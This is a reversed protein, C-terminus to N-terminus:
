SPANLSKFTWGIISNLTAVAPRLERPSMVALLEAHTPAGYPVPGNHVDFGQVLDIRPLRGYVEIYYSLRLLSRKEHTPPLRDLQRKIRELSVPLEEAPLPVLGRDGQAAATAAAGAALGGTLSLTATRTKLRNEVRLVGPTERAISEMKIKEIRSQVVGVLSVVSDHVIIHYPPNATAAFREFFRHTVVKYGIAQRLAQDGRSPSLIELDNHLERVGRVRAVRRGIDGKKDPTATVRGILTVVGNHLSWHVFDFVTYYEYDRIADVVDQGLVADSEASEITLADTVVGHLASSERAEEIAADKAWLSPVRGSLSVVNEQISVTVNLLAENKSLRREIQSRTQDASPAQAYSTAAALLAMLGVSLTLPRIQQFTMLVPLRPM